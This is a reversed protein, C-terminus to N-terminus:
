SKGKKTDELLVLFYEHHNNKLFLNKVGIGVILSKIFEAENSTFVAKHEVINYKIELSDLLEYINM